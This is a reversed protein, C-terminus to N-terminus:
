GAMRAAWDGSKAWMFCWCSLSCSLGTLSVLESSRVLNSEFNSLISKPWDGKEIALM